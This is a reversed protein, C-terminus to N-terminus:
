NIRGTSADVQVTFVKGESNLLRIQYVTRDGSRLTDVKVAKARFRSEARSVAEDRSIGANGDGRQRPQRRDILSQADAVSATVSGLTAAAVLASLIVRRLKSVQM